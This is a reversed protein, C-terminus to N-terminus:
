NRGRLAALTTKLEARARSLRSMVTGIPIAAVHAIEAYSLGELERLVVVERFPPALARLAHDVLKRTRERELAIGPDTEQGHEHAPLKDILDDDLEVRGPETRQEELWTYCNNRVIALLWPRADDGRLSDFYRYARLFADQVVDEAVQHDHVLWRAFNFAAQLHPLVLTEFDRPTTM